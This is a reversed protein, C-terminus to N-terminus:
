VVFVDVFRGEELFSSRHAPNSLLQCVFTAGDPLSQLRFIHFEGSYTRGHGARRQKDAIGAHV